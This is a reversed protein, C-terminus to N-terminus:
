NTITWEDYIPYTNTGPLSFASLHVYDNDFEGNTLFQTDNASISTVFNENQDYIDVQIDGNSEHLMEIKYWQNSLVQNVSSISNFNDNVRKYLFFSPGRPDYQIAYSDFNSSGRTAANACYRIVPRTENATMKVWVSHTEDTQPTADVGTDTGIDAVNTFEVANNGFLATTTIQVNSLDGSWVSLNGSEFNDVLTQASFVVDGDVTIEQVDTGDITAGTIPNGDIEVPAM